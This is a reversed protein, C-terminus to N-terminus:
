KKKADVRFNQWSLKHWESKTTTDNNCWAMRENKRETLDALRRQEKWTLLLWLVYIFYTSIAAPMTPQMAYDSNQETQWSSLIRGQNYLIM